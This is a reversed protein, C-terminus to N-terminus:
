LRVPMIVHIESDNGNKPTLAMTADSSTPWHLVANEVTMSKLSELLYESNLGLPSLHETGGDCSVIEVAKEGGQNASAISLLDESTISLKAAMGHDDRISQIRALVDVVSERNFCVPTTQSLDPMVRRYDPYQGDVLKSVMSLNDFEFRITKDPDISVQVDGKANHCASQLLGVTKHPIIVQSEGGASNDVSFGSVAMRHGNTTVATIRDGAIDLLAGNLYYRVDGVAMAYSVHSLITAFVQSDVTFAQEGQHGLQPFEAPDATRLKFRSRGNKVTAGKDSLDINIEDAEFARCLNYLKRGPLCCQWGPDSSEAQVASTIEVELDTGRLHLTQGATTMHVMKLPELTANDKVVGVVSKLGATLSSREITVRM